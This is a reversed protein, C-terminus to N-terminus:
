IIEANECTGSFQLGKNWYQKLTDTFYEIAFIKLLANLLFLLLQYLCFQKSANTFILTGKEPNNELIGFSFEILLM